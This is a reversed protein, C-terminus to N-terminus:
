VFIDFPLQKPVEKPKEHTKVLETFFKSYLGEVLRILERARKKGNDTGSLLYFKIARHAALAGILPTDTFIDFIIEMNKAIEMLINQRAVDMRLHAATYGLCSLLDMFFHAYHYENYDWMLELKRNVIDKVIYPIDRIFSGLEYEVRTLASLMGALAIYYMDLVIRYNNSAEKLWKITKIIRARYKSALRKASQEDLIDLLIGLILNFTFHYNAARIRNPTLLDKGEFQKYYRETNKLFEGLIRLIDEKGLSNLLLGWIYLFQLIHFYYPALASENDMKSKIEGIKESWESFSAPTQTLIELLIKDLLLQAEIYASRDGIKELIKEIISPIPVPTLMLAYVMSETSDDSMKEMFLKKKTFIYKRRNVYQGLKFFSRLEITLYTKAIDDEIGSIIAVIQDIPIAKIKPDFSNLILASKVYLIKPLDGEHFARPAIKLIEFFNGDLYLDILSDIPIHGIQAKFKKKEKTSYTKEKPVLGKIGLKTGGEMHDIFAILQSALKEVTLIPPPHKHIRRDILEMVEEKINEAFQIDDAKIGRDILDGIIKDMLIFVRDDEVDSILVLIFQSSFRFYLHYSKTELHKIYEKVVTKLAQSIATMIGSFLPEKEKFLSVYDKSVLLTGGADLLLYALIM